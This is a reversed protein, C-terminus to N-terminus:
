RGERVAPNFDRCDGALNPIFIPARDCSQCAWRTVGHSAAACSAFCFNSLMQVDLSKRKIM